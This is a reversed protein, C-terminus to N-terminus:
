LRIKLELLFAKRLVNLFAKLYCEVYIVLV